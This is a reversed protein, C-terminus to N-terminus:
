NILMFTAFISGANTLKINIGIPECLGDSRVGLGTDDVWGMRKLLTYGVGCNIKNSRTDIEVVGALKEEDVQEDAPRHRTAM